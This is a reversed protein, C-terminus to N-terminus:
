PTQFVDYISFQATFPNMVMSRQARTSNNVSNIIVDQVLGQPMIFFWAQPTEVGAAHSLEDKGQIFFSRVEVNDPIKVQTKLYNVRVPAFKRDNQGQALPEEQQLSIGRSKFDFLVRQLVGTMLANTHGVQVLIRLNEVFNDEPKQGFHAVRPIVISMMIGVIIMAILIELLTFGSLRDMLYGSLTDM